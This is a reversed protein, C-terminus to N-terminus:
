AHQSPPATSERVVLKVDLQPHNDEPAIEGDILGFLMQAAARGIDIRPQSVTTLAPVFFAAVEIDDFGIISVDEPVRVGAKALRSIFGFAERDSACFMATPRDSMSLWKEAALRGSDLSFDGEIILSDDYTLGCSELGAKFGKIRAATLVNEKPGTIHGIKTHGMAALHRVAQMSGGVNDVTVSPATEDSHWECASVIPARKELNGRAKLLSLDLMGDLVIFGDARASALMNVVKNKANSTNGTETVFVGFGRPGCIQEIGAIIFSFFPNSLDPALVGISNSTKKRLNRAMENAVYGTSAVADLVLVRTQESVRDPSSLTRSVTATSVGALRAVDLITPAETRM